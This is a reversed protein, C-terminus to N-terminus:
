GAAGAGQSAEEPPDERARKAFVSDFAAGLPFRTIERSRVEHLGADSLLARVADPSMGHSPKTPERLHVRGGPRLLEALSAVTSAREGPTVDHLANHIIIRDFSGAELAATEIRGVVCRVRPFRRLRRAAIRLLPPSLDLCVLSGGDRLRPAIFRAIGGSGSGFDLVRESGRLPVSEAYDRYFSRFLVPGLVGDFLVFLPSPREFSM